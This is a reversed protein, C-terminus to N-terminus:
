GNSKPFLISRLSAPTTSLIESRALDLVSAPDDDYKKALSRTLEGGRTERLDYEKRATRLDELKHQVSEPSRHSPIFRDLPSRSRLFDSLEVAPPETARITRTWGHHHLLACALSIEGETWNANDLVHFGIARLNEADIREHEHATRHIEAVIRLPYARARYLVYGRPRSIVEASDLRGAEFNRDFEALTAVLSATSPRCTTM